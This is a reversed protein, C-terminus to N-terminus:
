VLLCIKSIEFCFKSGFGSSEHTKWFKVNLIFNQTKSWIIWRRKETTKLAATYHETVWHGNFFLSDVAWREILKMLGRSPPSSAIRPGREHDAHYRNQGDEFQLATGIAEGAECVEKRIGSKMVMKEPSRSSLFYTANSIDSGGHPNSNYKQGWPACSSKNCGQQRFKRRMGFWTWANCAVCFCM